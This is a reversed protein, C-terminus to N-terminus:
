QPVPVIPFSESEGFFLKRCTGGRVEMAFAKIACAIIYRAPKKDRAESNVLLLRSFKLTPSNQTLDGVGTLAVTWFLNKIALHGQM